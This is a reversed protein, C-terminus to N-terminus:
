LRKLEDNYKILFDNKNEAGSIKYIRLMARKVSSETIKNKEAIEAYTENKVISKIFEIDKAPLDFVHFTNSNTNDFTSDTPKALLFYLLTLILSTGFCNMFCYLFLSIGYRLQSAIAALVILTILVVKFATHKKLFNIKIAFCLGLLFLLFGLLSGTDIIELLGWIGCILSYIAFKTPYLILVFFACITISCLISVVIPNKIRYPLSELAELM